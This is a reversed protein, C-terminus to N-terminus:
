RMVLIRDIGSLKVELRYMNYIGDEHDVLSM